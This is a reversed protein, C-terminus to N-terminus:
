VGLILKDLLEIIYDLKQTQTASPGKAIVEKDSQIREEKTLENALKKIIAKQNGTDHEEVIWEIGQEDIENELKKVIIEKM